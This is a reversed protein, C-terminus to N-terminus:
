RRGHRTVGIESVLTSTSECGVSLGNAIAVHVYILDPNEIQFAGLFEQAKTRENLNIQMWKRADSPWNDCTSAKVQIPVTRCQDDAALIDFAPVNGSFPTAILGWRGLEACVLHEGIQKALSNNRGNSM